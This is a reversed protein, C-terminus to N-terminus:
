VICFVNSHYTVCVSADHGGGSSLERLEQDHRSHNSTCAWASTLFPTGASWQLHDPVIAAPQPSNGALQALLGPRVAITWSASCHDSCGSHSLSHLIIGYSSITGLAATVKCVHEAHNCCSGSLQCVPVALLQHIAVAPMAASSTPHGPVGDTTGHTCIVTHSQPCMSHAGCHM